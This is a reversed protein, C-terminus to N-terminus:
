KEISLLISVFSRDVRTPYGYRSAEDNDHTSLVGRGSPLLHYRLVWSWSSRALRDPYCVVLRSVRGSRLMSAFVKLVRSDPSGDALSHTFFISGHDRTRIVLYDLKYNVVDTYRGLLSEHMWIQKFIRGM